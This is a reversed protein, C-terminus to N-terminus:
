IQRYIWKCSLGNCSTIDDILGKTKADLFNIEEIALKTNKKFDLEIKQYIDTKM